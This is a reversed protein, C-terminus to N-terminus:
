HTPSYTTSPIQQPDDMSQTLLLGTSTKIEWREKQHFLIPSRLSKQITM